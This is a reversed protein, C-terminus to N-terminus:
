KANKRAKLKVQVQFLFALEQRYFVTVNRCLKGHNTKANYTRTIKENSIRTITLLKYLNILIRCLFINFAIYKYQNWLSVIASFYESFSSEVFRSYISLPKDYREDLLIKM